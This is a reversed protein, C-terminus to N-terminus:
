YNAVKGNSLVPYTDFLLIFRLKYSFIALTRAFYRLRYIISCDHFHRVVKQFISLLYSNFVIFAIM